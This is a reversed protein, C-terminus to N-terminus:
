FANKHTARGFVTMLIIKLDWWLGWNQIYALDHEIRKEMKELTDTEGRWGNVQAWGTIGPKVKHRLMYGHIKKRYLENHAVAHPRPGVVSLTGTVVQLFQPLEDLSTRRLFAGFKTVRADGKSAQKILDGDECVTMTRFKLVEIIEGNLGYRRQRFLVPGPSTLKIVLAIITMPIAVLPLIVTTLVIDEVRKVWGDVGSFPTDFISVVPIGGVSTWRAHLLDFVFFDAAVYVSATTDALKRTLSNIRPEAKLPLAIYVIDLKGFQADAVLTDLNGITKGLERPILHQRDEGRDDYFGRVNMGLWPEEVIRRALLEGLETAGVIAVSRTNMGHSRLEQVVIRAVARWISLFLPALVFWSLTVVRSFHASMKSVFGAFLLIPVTWAWTSWIRVIESRLPAGRWPQYLGSADGMLHFAIVAIASALTHSADWDRPYSLCAIWHALVILGADVIRCLLELKNRNPRLLEKTKGM